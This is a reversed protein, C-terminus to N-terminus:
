PAGEGDFGDSFLPCPAVELLAGTPLGGHLVAGCGESFGDPTQVAIVPRPETAALRLAALLLAVAFVVLVLRVLWRDRRPERDFAIPRWHTVKYLSEIRDGIVATHRYWGRLEVAQDSPPLSSAGDIPRWRNPNANM